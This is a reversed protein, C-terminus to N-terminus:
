GFFDAGSGSFFSEPGSAGKVIDYSKNEIKYMKDKMQEEIDYKNLSLLEFVDQEDIDEGVWIGNTRDINNYWTAEKVKEFQLIDDCFIFVQNKLNNMNTMVQEFVTKEGADLVNLYDGLGIFLNVVMPDKSTLISQLGEQYKLNYYSMNGETNVSSAFDFINFKINPLKDILDIISGLLSINRTVGKGLVLTTRSTFDYYAVDGTDRSYGIPVRNLSKNYKFLSELKIEQPMAKIGPAKESFKTSIQRGVEKVYDSIEDKKTIYATQFESVEDDIATLGRGFAKAPALGHPAGLIYQYDFADNVQLMIRNAFYEQVTSRVSNASVASVMFVIGFKSGERILRTLVDEYNSCSEMFSEYANLVTVILPLKHGSNKCYEKYSGNYDAFMDKRKQIQKELFQFQSLVKDQDSSTIFDGVQPFKNFIGLSEAGFDIIYFNIEDTTHTTCLSYIATSLYNEKGSNPIGTIYTNKDTIDIKYIGQEQKAPKDYEGIVAEFQYPASTFGYKKIIDALRSDKDLSPLWLTNFGINERTGITYLYKVLNTLQEGMNVIESKKVEDVVTKYVLGDHSIFEISDDIKNVVKDVPIYKAGAWASQGLEFIEDNGVQLYFRGAEKIYAADSKKLMENSDGTTQVKLCVKFRSNSWIQDDVVGSPKQTALILHVGLSRGIRSTSILEDMFERQQQKLEAFEDCIIFLHSIPDKVQGERYLKQYKYIDITGEGLADRAENFKMQRRKLESNISVLTRHMEATDLNTITGALHPIKIGKERNEFAGALGGGKYDILVFQVEEPSYNIAMSLVYTIIFESKGSGTTGAILGHPGHFKEHLDLGLLKGDEKVGLPTNLSITPDNDHWRQLINLHDVKGVKYMDLFNLSKPLSSGANKLLVPINGVVKAYAKLDLGQRYEPTLNIQDTNQKSYIASKNEEIDVFKELRSPLDKLSDGFIMLSFGINQNSDLIKKVISLNKVTKYDDTIILYYESFNRYLDNKETTKNSDENTSKSEELRKDYIQELYMSLQSMEEDTSAFFRKDLNNSFNYPLYSLYEWSDKNYDNTFLVIKLDVASYYYLLQLMLSNIYDQRYPTNLIFPAVKTKVMSLTIPVNKTEFKTKGIQIVRDRLNDDYMTFHEEPTNVKINAPLNGIGLRITLFDSDIIERGWLSESKTKLRKSIEDLTLNNEHIIEEQTKIIKSIEAVKENVYKSYRQQRLKERKKKRNREYNRTLIPLLICSALMAVGMLLQLIANARDGQGSTLSRLATTTTLVSSLAMIASTGMTLILPMREDREEDPPADITLEEPKIEREIRPTHYFLQNENFLKINRETQTVPTFKTNDSITNEKLKLGYIVLRNLPNNVKFYDGMWIIRLGNIFIVDGFNLASTQILKRNVYVCNNNTDLNRISFKGNMEEIVAQKQSITNTNYTVSCEASGITIKNTNAFTIDTSKEFDPLIYFTVNKNLDAFFLNYCDHEKLFISEIPSKEIQINMNVNSEMKWKGDVAELTITESISDKSYYYNISYYDKVEKPLIFADIKKDDCFLLKM